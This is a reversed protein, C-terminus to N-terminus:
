YVLGDLSPCICFLSHTIFSFFQLSTFNSPDDHLLQERSTRGSSGDAQCLSRDRGIRNFILRSALGALIM